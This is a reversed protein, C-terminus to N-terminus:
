EDSFVRFPLAVPGDNLGLPYVSANFAIKRGVLGPSDLQWLYPNASYSPLGQSAAYADLKLVIGRWQNDLGAIAIKMWWPIFPIPKLSKM